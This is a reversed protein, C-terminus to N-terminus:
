PKLRKRCKICKAIVEKGIEELSFMYHGCKHCTLASNDKDVIVYENKKGIIKM